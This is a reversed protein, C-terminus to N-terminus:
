RDERAFFNKFVESQYTGRTIDIIGHVTIKKPTQRHALWHRTGKACAGTISRYAFIADAKSITKDLTWAKFQTLDKSTRKVMLDARAEDLTDGHALHQDFEGPIDVSIAEGKTNGRVDAHCVFVRDIKLVWGAAGLFGAGWGAITKGDYRTYLASM